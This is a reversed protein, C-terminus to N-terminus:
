STGDISAGPIASLMTPSVRLTPLNSEANGHGKGENAKKERSEILRWRHNLM